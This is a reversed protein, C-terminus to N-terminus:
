EEIKVPVMYFGLSESECSIPNSCYRQEQSKKKELEEKCRDESLYVPSVPFEKTVRTEDPDFEDVLISRTEYIQYGIM